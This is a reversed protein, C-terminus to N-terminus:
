AAEPLEAQRSVMGARGPLRGSYVAAAAIRQSHKLLEAAWDELTFFQVGSALARDLFDAFADLCPGGEIEAHLTFVQPRGSDLRCLILDFFEKDTLGNMGWLEDLTPLTTPIELLPNVRPGFRPWYPCQGRTDSAYRFGAAALVTRSVETAQWGPAAFSRAPRGCIRIFERQGRQVEDWVQAATMRGAGDHWRVHDYGHLGAEHGAATLRPLIDTAAAAISPGPLLTGYLMTKLGYVAPARTRLMKELFGRQKFVRFIARGSNDPGLAVFFSARIRREGLIRALAPVGKRLGDLTDVDIKLGLRGAM